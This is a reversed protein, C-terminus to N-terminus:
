QPGDRGPTRDTMPDGQPMISAHNSTFHDVDDETQRALRDWEERSKCVRGSGTRWQPDDITRCVRRHPDPQRANPEPQAAPPDFALAAAPALAVLTVFAIRSLM